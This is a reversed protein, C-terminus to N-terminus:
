LRVERSRCEDVDESRKGTSREVLCQLEKIGFSSSDLVNSHRKRAVFM